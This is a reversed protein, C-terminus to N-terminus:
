PQQPHPQRGRKRGPHQERRQRLPRPHDTHTGGGLATLFDARTGSSTQPLFAEIPANKGGVQDWNTDTCEYIALLQAPTLSAPADTGGATASRAAWTVADGALAVFALGGPAYPPDTAERGRSSRAFDICYNTANGSPQANTDLAAIGASSGNPRPITACFAKTTIPDGTAGTTPNTADWGYWLPDGGKHASNYDHAFQDFLYQTTNAGASVVDTDRPTTGAPPDALAPATAVTGLTVAATIAAALVRIRHGRYNSPRHRVKRAM